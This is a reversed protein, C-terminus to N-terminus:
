SKVLENKQVHKKPTIFMFFTDKVKEPPVEISEWELFDINASDIFNIEERFGELRDVSEKFTLKMEKLENIESSKIKIFDPNLPTITEHFNIQIKKTLEKVSNIDFLAAGKDNLYLSCKIEGIASVIYLSFYHNFLSFYILQQGKKIFADLILQYFMRAQGFLRRAEKFEEQKYVSERAREALHIANKLVSLDRNEQKEKSDKLLDLIIDLKADIRELKNEIKNLRHALYVFGITSVSLNLISTISSINGTMNLLKLQEQLQPPYNNVNKIRQIGVERLHTAIDGKQTRIVGGFRKYIGENLGQKIDNPMEFIIEVFDNLM